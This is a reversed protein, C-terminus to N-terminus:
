RRPRGAPPAGPVAGPQKEGQAAASIVKTQMSQFVLYALLGIGFLKSCLGGTAVLATRLIRVPGQAVAADALPAPESPGATAVRLQRLLDSQAGEAAGGPLAAQETWGAAAPIPVRAPISTPATVPGPAPGGGELQLQLRPLEAEIKARFSEAFLPDTEGQLARLLQSPSIRPLRGDADDLVQDLKVLGVAPPGGEDDPSPMLLGRAANHPPEQLGLRAGAAPATPENASAQDPLGSLILPPAPPLARTARRGLPAAPTGLFATPRPSTDLFSYFDKLEPPLPPPLEPGWLFERLEQMGSVSAAVPAAARAATMVTGVPLGALLPQGGYEDFDFM